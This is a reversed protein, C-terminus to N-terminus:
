LKGPRSAVLIIEFDASTKRINMGKAKLYEEVEALSVSSVEHEDGELHHIEAIMALGEPSFDSVVLKGGPALVRQLEDLVRYPNKLHHVLNVAFIIDFSNDALSLNEGDEQRLEVLGALGHAELNQRAFELQEASQDFSVLRYGIRALNITLHGRGTGAELIRGTIPQAARIVALRERDVDYGFRENLEKRRAIQALASNIEEKKNLEIQKSQNEQIQKKEQKNKREDMM